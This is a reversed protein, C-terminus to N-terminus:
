TRDWNGRRTHCHLCQFSYYQVDSWTYIQEDKALETNDWLHSKNESTMELFLKRGNKETSHNTFDVPDWIGQFEMFDNCHILWKGGQLSSFEPTKLIKDISEKTVFDHINYEYLLNPEYNNSTVFGRETEHAFSLDYGLLCSICIKELEGSPPIIFKSQDTKCIPCHDNGYTFNKLDVISANFYGKKFKENKFKRSLSSSM